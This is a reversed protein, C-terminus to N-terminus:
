RGKKNTPKTIHWDSRRLGANLYYMRETQVGKDKGQKRESEVDNEQLWILIDDISITESREDRGYLEKHLEELASYVFARVPSKFHKSAVPTRKVGLRQFYQFLDEEDYKPINIREQFKHIVWGIKYFKIWGEILLSDWIKQYGERQEDTFIQKSM